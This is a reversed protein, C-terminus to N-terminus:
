TKDYGKWHVQYELGNDEQRKVLIREIEYVDDEGSSTDSDEPQLWVKTAAKSQGKTKGFKIGQCIGCNDIDCGTWTPCKPGTRHADLPLVGHAKCIKCQGMKSNVPTIGKARKLPGATNKAPAAPRTHKGRLSNLVEYVRADQRSTPAGKQQPAGIGPQLEAVDDVDAELFNKLSDLAAMVKQFKDPGASAGLKALVQAKQALM